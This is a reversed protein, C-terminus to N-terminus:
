ARFFPFVTEDTDSQRVRRRLRCDTAPDKQGTTAVLPGGDVVRHDFTLSLAMTKGAVVKGEVVVPEDAIRGVGLIATQPLNIIPTFYDIDFKGLNTVTFTGGALQDHDLVGSVAQDVLRRM